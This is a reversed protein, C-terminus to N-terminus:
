MDENLYYQINEAFSADQKLGLSLAKQPNFNRCWGSVIKEVAPDKEWKILSELDPGAIAKMADIMEGVSLYQGPMTMCVNMGLDEQKLEAGLILNEICLKPSLYYHNFTRDVPCIATEGNLPERIISSMFSSAAKNPKGPRVSITPLRFGRGQLFKRRSYDNLLLEGIAKQTGYSTQPNLLTWDEILDPIEGGFVAASSTYVFIPCNAMERCRELVNHMGFLNVNMGDEFVAEAHSSVVAALMYIVDIDDAFAREVSQKDSMDCEITEVSFSAEVNAPKAIDALILSDIKQGCLMERRSLERALRQGIFGGGGLIMIKM